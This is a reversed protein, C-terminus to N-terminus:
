VVVNNSGVVHIKLSDAITTNVIALLEDLWSRKSEPCRLKAFLVGERLARYGDIQSSCSRFDSILRQVYEGTEQETWRPLVARTRDFREYITFWSDM